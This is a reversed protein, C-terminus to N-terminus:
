IFNSVCWVHSSVFPQWWWAKGYRFNAANNLKFSLRKQISSIIRALYITNYYENTLDLQKLM